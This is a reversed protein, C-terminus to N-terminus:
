IEIIRLWRIEESPEIDEVRFPIIPIGNDVEESVERFVHVSNNSGKSIVLVCVRNEIIANVLSAAYPQRSLRGPDRDM